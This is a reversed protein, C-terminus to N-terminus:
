RLKFEVAVEVMVAVPDGHRLAPTFRWQRVAEVAREDLGAGLRRLVQISSVGGDPGVVIELLVEGELGMRRAQETYDPKVERLLGPPEVGSGPRYPGGGIGAGQGPGVGRGTGEGVGIGAGTGVGSGTGPNELEPIAPNVVEALLGTRHRADAGVAVLPALLPPLPRHALPPRQPRAREPHPPALAPPRRQLLPSSTLGTGVREAQPAPAPQRLGGGGGGGGPGPDALFVLRMPETRSTSAEEPLAQPVAVAALVLMLAMATAHVSGSVLLSLSTSRRDRTSDAPHRSFLGCRAGAGGGTLRGDGLAQCAHIADQRTVLSGDITPIEATRILERVQRAHLGTARALDDSSFVDPLSHM